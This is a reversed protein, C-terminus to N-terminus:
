AVISGPRPLIRIAAEEDEAGIADLIDILDGYQTVRDPYYYTTYYDIGYSMTYRSTRYPYGVVMTFDGERLPAVSIALHHAPKYPVNKEDYDASKGDPSVYARLFSFDGTHRPWMWNDIEGGYVGITHPPAYVIRIDKIRFYTLLHYQTSSFFAEVDARVDKGKEAKEVLEKQAKDIAKFRETDTMGPKVAKLVKKTVDEVSKLVYAQYGPAPIEEARTRALFGEEMVNAELSSQRQLARFAVHHNTLLLGDASVFSATGGGLQVIADTLSPHGEDYIQSKDLMLGAKEWSEYPAKDLQFPLWMGEAANALSVTSICLISFLAIVTTGRAM